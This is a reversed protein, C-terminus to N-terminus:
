FTPCLIGMSHSQKKKSANSRSNSLLRRGGRLSAKHKGSHKNAGLIRDFLSDAKQQEPTELMEKYGVLGLNKAHLRRKPKDENHKKDEAGKKRKDTDADNSKSKVDEAKAAKKEIKENRHINNSKSIAEEAKTLGKSAAKGATKEKFHILQHSHLPPIPAFHNHVPAAPHLHHAPLMHSAPKVASSPHSAHFHHVTQPVASHVQLPAHHLHMAGPRYRSLFADKSPEKGTLMQEFQLCMELPPIYLNQIYAIHHLLMPPYMLPLEPSNEPVFPM